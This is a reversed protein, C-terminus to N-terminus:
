MLAGKYTKKIIALLPEARHLLSRAAASREGAALGSADPRTIPSLAPGGPCVGKRLLLSIAGASSLSSGCTLWTMGASGLGGGLRSWAECGKVHMRGESCHRM